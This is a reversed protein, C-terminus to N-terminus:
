TPTQGNLYDKWVEGVSSLGSMDDSLTLGYGGYTKPWWAYESWSCSYKNMIEIFDRMCQPWGPEPEPTPITKQTENGTFGFEDNIIPLNLDTPWLYKDHLWQEFEVRAKAYDGDYYSEYFPMGQNALEQYSQAGTVGEPGYLYYYHWTYIVNPTPIPDTRLINSFRWESWLDAHVIILLNPYHQHIQECVYKVAEWYGSTLGGDLNTGGWSPFTPQPENMIYVGVVNPIHEFYPLFDNILWDAWGEKTWPIPYGYQLGPIVYISENSFAEAAQVTFDRNGIGDGNTDLNADWKDGWVELRVFNVGLERFRRARDALTHGTWPHQLEDTCYAAEIFACGRLPVAEGQENRIYKGDTHLWGLKGGGSIVGQSSIVQGSQQASLTPFVLLSVFFIAVLSLVVSPKM